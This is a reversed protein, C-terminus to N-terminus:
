DICLYHHPMVPSHTCKYTLLHSTKTRTLVFAFFAHKRYYATRLCFLRRSHAISYIVFLKEIMCMVCAAQFLGAVSVPLSNQAANVDCCRTASYASCVSFTYARNLVFQASFRDLISCCCCLLPSLTIFFRFFSSFISVCLRFALRVPSIHHRFPIHLTFSSNYLKLYVCRFM